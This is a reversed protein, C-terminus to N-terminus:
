FYGSGRVFCDAIWGIQYPETQNQAESQNSPTLAFENMAQFWIIGDGYATAGTLTVENGAAIIGKTATDAVTPQSQFNAGTIASDNCLQPIPFKYPRLLANSVIAGGTTDDESPIAQLVPPTSVYPPFDTIVPFNHEASPVSIGSESSPSYNLEIMMEEILSLSVAFSIPFSFILAQVFIPTSNPPPDSKNPKLYTELHKDEPFLSMFFLAILTSAIKQLAHDRFLPVM